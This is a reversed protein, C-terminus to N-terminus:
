TNYFVPRVAFMPALSFVILGVLYFQWYRRQLQAETWYKHLQQPWVAGLEQLETLPLLSLVPEDGHSANNTDDDTAGYGEMEEQEPPTAFDDAPQQKQRLRHAIIHRREATGRPLRLMLLGFVACFVVYPGRLCSPVSAVSDGSVFSLLPPLAFKLVPKSLLEALVVMSVMMGMAGVFKWPASVPGPLSAVTNGTVALNLWAGHVFGAAFGCVRFTDLLCPCYQSPKAAIMVIARTVYLPIFWYYWPLPAAPLVLDTLPGEFATIAGCVGVAALIGGLIDGFWHAGLYYRSAAVHLAYVAGISGATIFRVHRVYEAFRTAEIAMTFALATHTSPFGYELNHMSRYRKEVPPIPPRPCEALDKALGTVFISLVIAIGPVVCHEGYGSLNLTAIFLVILVDEAMCSWAWFYWTLVRQLRPPGFRQIRAMRAAAADNAWHRMYWRKFCNWTDPTDPPAPLSLMPEAEDCDSAHM